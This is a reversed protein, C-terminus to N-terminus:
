MTSARLGDAIPTGLSHGQECRRVDTVKGVLATEWCLPVVGRRPVHGGQEEALAVSSPRANPPTTDQPCPERLLLEGKVRPRRHFPNPPPSTTSSGVIAHRRRGPVFFPTFCAGATPPSTSSGATAPRRCAEWWIRHRRRPPLERKGGSETAAARYSSASGVSDPLPPRLSLSLPPSSKLFLLEAADEEQKHEKRDEGEVSGGDDAAGRGKSVQAITPQGACQFLSPSLAATARESDAVGREARRRGGAAVYLLACRSPTPPPTPPTLPSSFSSSTTASHQPRLFYLFPYFLFVVGTSKHILAHM